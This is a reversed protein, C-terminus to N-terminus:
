RQSFYRSVGHFCGAQLEIGYLLVGIDDPVVRLLADDDVGPVGRRALVGRQVVEDGSVPEFGDHGDVGVAMEVMRQADSVELLAVANGEGERALVAEQQVVGRRAARGCAFASKVPSVSKRSDIPRM